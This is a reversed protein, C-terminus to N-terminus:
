NLFSILDELSLKEYNNGSDLDKITYTKSEVEERGLIIALNFNNKNARKLQTKLNTDLGTYRVGFDPFSARIKESINNGYALFKDDLIIVVIQKPHTISFKDKCAIILRDLGLSVGVAPTSRGGLKKSLSDYRGGACFTNQSGLSDSKWEFVSDNYYDLGRVLNENEEYAIEFEDLLNKLLEYKNKSDDSRFQAIKPADKLVKQTESSKSDLIRLPNKKLRNQSDKDLQNKLPELYDQLAISFKRQDDESGLSNIELRSDDIKYNKIIKEIIQFLEIEAYVSDIGYIEASLQFFERNRGKQPREYRYMPGSYFLRQPGSDLLGQNISARMCGATGEPRLTLSKDSKSEFTFMEKNVIDTENGVSRKFLDTYEVIPLRIESYSFSKLLSESFKSVHSWLNAEELSANHMGRVKEFKSM